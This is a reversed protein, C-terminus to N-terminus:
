LDSLDTLCIGVSFPYLEPGKGSRFLTTISYTGYLNIVGWGIKVIGDVKFPNLYYDGPEKDKQKGGDDYVYKTHSGVRLGGVVGAGLHFSNAKARPNTQYELMLPVTLYNVVLKSKIYSIDNGQDNYVALIGDRKALRTDTADFRYNNWTFGIGTVLGLKNKVLNFNQEFLNLNVNTSKVYNQELGSYASPYNFDMDPTLYGNLGIELGSWHGNFKKKKDHKVKVDGEDNVIVENRGLKVKVTDDSIIVVKNPGMRVSVTDEGDHAEFLVNKEGNAEEIIVSKINEMGSLSRVMEDPASIQRMEGKDFYSISGAGSVDTKLQLKAMVKANGAGSVEANTNDTVLEMAKVNAAGSVELNHETAAGSLTLNAAGSAETKLTNTNTKITASAAGSLDLFMDGAQMEFTAKTAGTGEYTFNDSALPTQGTIIAAGDAEIRKLTVATVYANMKTANNIGDASISLVGNSVETEFRGLLNEDIEVKVSQTSGQSLFVNIASGTEISNFAPLQREQTVVNGNGKQAFLLSPSAILALLVILSNIKLTKM